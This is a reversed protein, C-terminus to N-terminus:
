KEIPNKSLWTIPRLHSNVIPRLANHHLPVAVTCFTNLLTHYCQFYCTSPDVTVGQTMGEEIKTILTQSLSPLESYDGVTLVNQPGAPSTIGQLQQLEFGSGAGVCFVIVSNAQLEEAGYFVDDVATSGMVLVLIRRYSDSHKSGFLQNKAAKLAEGAYCDGGPCSASDVALDIEEIRTFTRDFDFIPHPMAGFVILGVHLSEFPTWFARYISKIFELSRRYNEESVAYSGDVLLGLDIKAELYIFHCTDNSVPRSRLPIRM